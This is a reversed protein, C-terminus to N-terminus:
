ENEKEGLKKLEEVLENHYKSTKELHRTLESISFALRKIEKDLKYHRRNAKWQTFVKEDFNWCHQTCCNHPNLDQLTDGVYKVMVWDLDDKRAQKFYVYKSNVYIVRHKECHLNGVIDEYLEYIYKQKSLDKAEM